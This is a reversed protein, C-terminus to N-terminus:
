ARGESLDFGNEALLAKVKEYTGLVLGPCRTTRSHPDDGLIADCSIGGYTRGYEATFWEVLEAVM